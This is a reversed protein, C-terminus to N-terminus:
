EDRVRRPVKGRRYDPSSQVATARTTRSQARSIILRALGALEVPSLVSTRSPGYRGIWCEPRGSGDFGLYKGAIGTVVHNAAYDTSTIKRGFVAAHRVTIAM